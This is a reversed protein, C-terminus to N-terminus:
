AEHSEFFILIDDLTDEVAGPVDPVDLHRRLVTVVSPSISRHTRALHGLAQLAAIRVETRRDDLARMLQQEAWYRDREHLGISLLASVVQEVSDSALAKLLDDREQSPVNEHIV